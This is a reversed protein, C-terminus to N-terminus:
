PAPIVRIVPYSPDYYFRYGRASQSYTGKWYLTLTSGNPSPFSCSVDLPTGNAIKLDVGPATRLVYLISHATDVYCRTALRVGDNVTPNAPDYVRFIGALNGTIPYVATDLQFIVFSAQLTGDPVLGEVHPSPDASSEVPQTFPMSSM